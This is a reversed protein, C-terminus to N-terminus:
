GDFGDFKPGFRSLKKRRFRKVILTSLLLSGNIMMTAVYVNCISYTFRQQRNWIHYKQHCIKGRDKNAGLDGFKANCINKKARFVSNGNDYICM